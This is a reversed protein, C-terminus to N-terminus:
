VLSHWDLLLALRRSTAIVVFIMGNACIAFAGVGTYKTHIHTVGSWWCCVCAYAANEVITHLRTTCGHALLASVYM